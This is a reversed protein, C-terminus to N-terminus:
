TCGYTEGKLAVLLSSAHMLEDHTETRLKLLGAGLKEVRGRAVSQVLGERKNKSLLCM